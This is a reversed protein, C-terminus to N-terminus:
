KNIAYSKKFHNFTIMPINLNIDYDNGGFHCDLADDINKMLEDMTSGDTIITSNEDFEIQITYVWDEYFLKIKPSKM